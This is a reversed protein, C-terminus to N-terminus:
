TVRGQRAITGTQLANQLDRQFSIKPELFINKANESLGDCAALVQKLFEQNIYAFREDGKYEYTKAQFGLNYLYSLYDPIPEWSDTTSSFTPAAKQYIIYLSYVQDPVGMLRFTINGNNDDGVASIFAPTQQYTEGVLVSKVSLEISKLPDTEGSPPYVLTAKELWGFDPINITYDTQGVITSIPPLFGRNWRWAFPPALIFQRVYDGISYALAGDNVYLLPANYIFRSAIDITTKLQITSAM